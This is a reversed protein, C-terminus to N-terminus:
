HCWISVGLEVITRGAFFQEAPKGILIDETIQGAVVYADPDTDTDTLPQFFCRAQDPGNAMCRLEVKSPQRERWGRQHKM